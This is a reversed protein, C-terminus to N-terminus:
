LQGALYDALARVEEDSFSKAIRNMVGDNSNSRDGSRWDLLQKELYRWEQGGIPPSAAGSGCYGERGSRPLVRPM